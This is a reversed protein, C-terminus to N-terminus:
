EEFGTIEELNVGRTEKVKLVILICGIIMGPIAVGLSILGAKADGFINILLLPALIAVSGFAGGVVPWLSMVSSRLNTPTSETCMIGCVDQSAWYSGVASGCLLGAIYPELGNNVGYYFLGFSIVACIGMVIVASKRGWKDAILGHIAQFFASGVPFLFLARTVLPLAAAKADELAAGQALFPLAYGYTMATEYYSTMVMGWMIFGTGIVIWLLQKHRFCFKFATIVSAQAKEAGKAKKFMAREADSMRLYELRMKMFPDTERILAAVAVAVVVAIIGPILYIYRWGSIDTRMFVGRLIPILMMGLTAVAKIMSYGTARRKPPMVEMIYVKQMDHPVFFSIFVSGLFYVPINTAISIVLLGVGMGITNIILFPRRGYRDSLPKYLFAVGSMVMSVTGFVSMRAVAVEAGFVPAFLAQAIVSQMQTGIQTAVEDTIYIVCIFFILYYLYGRGKPRLLAKEWRSIERLEKQARKETKEPTVTKGRL